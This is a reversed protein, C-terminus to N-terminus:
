CQGYAWTSVKSSKAPKADVNAMGERDIPLAPFPSAKRGQYEADGMTLISVISGKAPKKSALLKALIDYMKAPPLSPLKNHQYIITPLHHCIPQSFASSLHLDVTLRPICCRGWDILTLLVPLHSMNILGLM